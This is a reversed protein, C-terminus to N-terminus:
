ILYKLVPCCFLDSGVSALGTHRSVRSCVQPRHPTSYAPPPSPSPPTKHLSTNLRSCAVEEPQGPRQWKKLFLSQHHALIHGEKPLYLPFYHPLVASPETLFSRSHSSRLHLCFTDDPYLLFPTLHPSSKGKSHQPIPM